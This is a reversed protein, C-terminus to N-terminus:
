WTPLMLVSLGGLLIREHQIKLISLMAVEATPIIHLAIYSTAPNTTSKPKNSPLGFFNTKM